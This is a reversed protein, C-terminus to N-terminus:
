TYSSPNKELVSWYYSFKDKRDALGNDGGNVWRSIKTVIDIGSGENAKKPFNKSVKPGAVSWFWVSCDAAFKGSLLEPNELVDDKIGKSKLYNNYSAYNARGTIQIYGRGKYKVGDGTQTNGLDKRGEYAKGSAFERKWAFEGSEHACQALFHAKEIANKIGYDKMAKIIDAPPTKSPKGPKYKIMEKAIESREEPTINSNTDQSLKYIYAEFTEKTEEDGAFIEESYEEDLEEENPLELPEEKIEGIGVIYLTGFQNTGVFANEQEVNFTFEGEINSYTPGTAVSGSASVIESTSMPGTPESATASTPTVAPTSATASPITEVLTSPDWPDQIVSWPGSSKRDPGIGIFEANLEAIIGDIFDMQTMTADKNNSDKRGSIDAIFEEMEKKSSFKSLSPMFNPHFDLYTDNSGKKFTTGDAEFDSVLAVESLFEKKDIKVLAILVQVDKDNGSSKKKWISNPSDVRVARILSYDTNGNLNKIYEEATLNAM